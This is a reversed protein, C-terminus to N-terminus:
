SGNLYIPKGVIGLDKAAGSGGTIVGGLLVALFTEFITGASGGQVERAIKALAKVVIADNMIQQATRDGLAKKQEGTPNAQSAEFVLKSFKALEDLRKQVSNADAAQFFSEFVDATSQSLKAMPKFEKFDDDSQSKQAFYDLDIDPVSKTVDQKKQDTDYSTGIDQTTQDSYAKTFNNTVAPQRITQNRGYKGVIKAAIHADNDSPKTAADDFDNATLKDKPKDLNALAKIKIKLADDDLGTDKKMGKYKTGFMGGKGVVDKDPDIPYKTKEM